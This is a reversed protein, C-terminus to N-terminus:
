SDVKTEHLLIFLIVMLVGTHIKYFFLFARVYQYESM